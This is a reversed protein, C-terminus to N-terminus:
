TSERGICFMVQGFGLGAAILQIVVYLRFQKSMLVANKAREYLARPSRDRIDKKYEELNLDAKKYAFPKKQKKAKPKSPEM